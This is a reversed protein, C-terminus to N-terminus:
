VDLFWFLFCFLLIFMRSFNQADDDIMMSILITMVKMLVLNIVRWRM